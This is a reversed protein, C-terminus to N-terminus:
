HALAWTALATGILAAFALLALVATYPSKDSPAAAGGRRELAAGGRRELTEREERRQAQERRWRDVVADLDLARVTGTPGTQATTNVKFIRENLAAFRERVSAESPMSALRELSTEVDLRVQLIEPLHGLGERKMLSKAWWMPDYAGGIDPIPLGTGPLDDFEGKRRSDSIQGDIWSNWSVGEPKRATM